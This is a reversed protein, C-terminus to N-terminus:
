PRPSLPNGAGSGRPFNLRAFEGAIPLIAADYAMAAEVEDEFYGVFHFRGGCRFAVRWHRKRADWSVGKYPSTGGQGGTNQQNEADTCKRLNSRHNNLGDADRHDIGKEGTIIQHMRVRPGRWDGLPTAMAYWRRGDASRAAHWSSPAVLPWVDDILAIRGCPLPLEM